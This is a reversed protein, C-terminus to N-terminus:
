GAQQDKETPLYPPQPPPGGSTPNFKIEYTIVFPPHSYTVDATSDYGLYQEYKYIVVHVQEGPYTKSTRELKITTAEANMNTYAYSLVVSATSLLKNLAKPAITTIVKKIIPAVGTVLGAMADSNFSSSAVKDILESSSDYYTVVKDYIKVPTISITSTLESYKNYFDNYKYDQPFTSTSRVSTFADDYLPTFTIIPTIRWFSYYTGDNYSYIYVKEMYYDVVAGDGKWTRTIDAEVYSVFGNSADEPSLTASGPDVTFDQHENGLILMGLLTVGSKHYHFKGVAISAAIKPLSICNYGCSGTLVVIPMDHLTEVGNEPTVSIWGVSYGMLETLFENMKKVGPSVRYWHSIAADVPSACTTPVYVSTSFVKRFKDYVTVPNAGVVRNMFDQSATSTYLESIATFDDDDFDFGYNTNYSWYNDITIVDYCSLSYSAVSIQRPATFTKISTKGSSMNYINHVIYHYTPTANTVAFMAPTLTLSKRRTYIYYPDNKVANFAKIRDGHFDKLAIDYSGIVASAIFHNGKSDYLFLTVTVASSESIRPPLKQAIKTMATKSMKIIKSSPLEVTVSRAGPAIKKSVHLGFIGPASGYVEVWGYLNGTHPVIKDVDKITITLRDPQGLRIPIIYLAAASVSTILIAILLLTSLKM